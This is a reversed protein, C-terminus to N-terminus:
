LPLQREIGVIRGKRVHLAVLEGKRLLLNRVGLARFVLPLVPRHTCVVLPGGEALGARLDRLLTTTAKEAVDEESLLTTTEVPVGALQVEAATTAATFAPPTIVKLQPGLGSVIVSVCVSLTLLLM